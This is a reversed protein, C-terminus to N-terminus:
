TVDGTYTKEIHNFCPKTEKTHALHEERPLCTQNIPRKLFLDNLYRLSEEAQELTDCETSLVGRFGNADLMEVFTAVIEFIENQFRAMGAVYEASM